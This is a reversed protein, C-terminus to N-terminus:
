KLYITGNWELRCFGKQSILQYGISTGKHTVQQKERTTKLIKAKDKIKIFKIVMHRPTNRKPNIKGPIRLVKPLQTVTEKGM